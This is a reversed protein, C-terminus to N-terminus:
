KRLASMKDKQDDTAHRNFRKMAQANLRSEPNEIHNISSNIERPTMSASEMMERAKDENGLKLARKVDPMISTVADQHARSESYMEGVAPGGPAGKSFTLGVLPGVIKKVDMDDGHGSALDYAALIQDSPVQAKMFNFVVKGINKATSADKSDDYVKQGVGKDNTITEYLPKLFTSFKAKIQKTTGAPFDAYHAFEEGIKGTPLRVYIMTGTSDEGWKVREEKGPENQGTASMSEMSNFPHALVSVPDSKLKEYLDGGRDSYSNLWGKWGNIKEKELWDQLLSNGAYMLGVDMVFTAIAKQRAASQASQLAIEGGSLRIQSQIDKPLGVIMDKMAGLNGMTFSRSFLSLNLIQRAGESMSERPLAGAYRNAFHAAVTAADTESMGKNLMSTKMSVYLGMQLDAVRDWLLTEHWFKGAADVAKKVNLAGKESMLAIPAALAKATWSQGPTLNPDDMIGTIDMHAGRGGIPVLGNSIAERMLDPDHKARNGTVYTYLGLSLKGKMDMAPIARGWEVANHIIPSYMILGMSKSKLAMMGLYVENPKVSMVAKLPGKFENSIKLPVQIMIPDGNEDKRIEGDKFDPRWTKFAPHDMTFFDDNEGVAGHLVTDKGSAQGLAKIQNILERAAVARELRAMAMPMTRINRVLEASKGDEDLRTKMASETEASTLYKRQKLSSAHTSINRGDSSGGGEGTSQPRSYEGSEGVMVAMRPTWYPVGEGEFMGNEKARTMLEEGYAHLTEVTAREETTLAGIGRTDDKIGDRRLDNEEDAANWMKTLQEETFNKTLVDDFKKWQWQARREQNAYDKATKRAVDSGESMPVTILKLDTLMERPAKLFQALKSSANVREEDRTPATKDARSALSAEMEPAAEGKMARHLSAVVLDAIDRENFNRLGLNNLFQKVAITIRTWASTARGEATEGLKAIVEKIFTDSGEPLDYLRKVDSWIDSIVKNGARKMMEVDRLLNAYGKDGMMSQLGHHEGIEHIVDRVIQGRTQNDAIIYGTGKWYVGGETGDMGSRAGVPLEDFSQVIKLVGSDQLNSLGKGFKLGLIKSADSISLGASPQAENRSYFTDKLADDLRGSQLQRGVEAMIQGWGEGSKGRVLTNLLAARKLTTSGGFYRNESKGFLGRSLQDFGADSFREGTSARVFEQKNFDYIVDKIEPVHDVASKYSTYLLERLNNPTNGKEWQMPRAEYAYDWDHGYYSQPDVQADHPELHDTTGFKLASSIMNETRRFYAAKSLGAPDGVFVRGNNHAYAAAIGYIKNGADKSPILRSVDIWVKQGDDYLVGSRHKQGPVTIDWAKQAGKERASSDGLKSVGYAPDIERGIGAVDKGEPTTHQFLEDHKALLTLVASARSDGKEPNRARSALPSVEESAPNSDVERGSAFEKAVGSPESGRGAREGSAERNAKDARLFHDATELNHAIGYSLEVGQKTIITGDPTEYRFAADKLRDRVRAMVDHGQQENDFHAAFEDGSLHYADPTEERLAKGVSAILQDGADHGLNDNVWKLSDIDISAQFPKKTVENYARKNGLGTLEDTMLAHRMEDPSMSDITKRGEIDQRRDAVAAPKAIEDPMAEQKAETLPRISRLTDAVTPANNPVAVKANPVDVSQRAAEIAADVTPANAINAISQLPKAQDADIIQSHEPTYGADVRSINEHPAGHGMAGAMVANTATGVALGEMSFPQQMRDPMSANQVERGTETLVAGVPIGTALRKFVSGELSMAASGMFGSWMAATGAGAIAEATTGGANKIEEFKETGSKIMIPRMADFGAGITKALYDVTSPAAEALAVGGKALQAQYGSIIMLPLDAALAGLGGAVKAVITQKEDPKIAAWDMTNQAPDVFHKFIYDQSTTDDSGTIANRVATYLVVPAAMTVLNTLKITSAGAQAFMRAASDIASVQKPDVPEAARDVSDSIDGMPNTVDGDNILQPQAAAKNLMATADDTVDAPTLPAADGGAVRAERDLIPQAIKAPQGGAQVITQQDAVPQSKIAAATQDVYDKRLPGLSPNGTGQNAVDSQAPANDMVSKSGSFLGSVDSKVGNYISGAATGISDLVSGAGSSKEPEGLFSIIETPSYGAKKAGAVDFGASKDAGLFDTIESDSYGAKRAGDIDFTM